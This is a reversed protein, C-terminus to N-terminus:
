LLGMAVFVRRVTVWDVMPRNGVAGAILPCGIAADDVYHQAYAKPSTSWDQEPNENAGFYPLEHSDYWRQADWLTDGSRMTWIILKHGALTLDGLVGVAGPVDPGVHPYMHEVCTGDFDVAIVRSM